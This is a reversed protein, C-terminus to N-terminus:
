KGRPNKAQGWAIIVDAISSVTRTQCLGSTCASQVDFIPATWLKANKLLPDSSPPMSALAAAQKLARRGGPSKSAFTAVAPTCVGMLSLGLPDKYPPPPPIALDVTLNSNGPISIQPSPPSKQATVSSPVVFITISQPPVTATLVSSSAQRQSLMIDPLQTVGYDSFETVQWVEAHSAFPSFLSTLNNNTLFKTLGSLNGLQVELVESAGELAKNVVVVTLAGDSSRYAAFASLNDPNSSSTTGLSFDGFTSNKGDYNRFIKFAQYTLTSADPCTWRAAM